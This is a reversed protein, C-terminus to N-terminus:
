RLLRWQENVYEAFSAAGSELWETLMQVSTEDLGGVISLNASEAIRTLPKELEAIARASRAITGALDLDLEMAMMRSATLTLLVAANWNTRQSWQAPVIFDAMGREAALAAIHRETALQIPAVDGHFLTAYRDDDATLELSQAISQKATPEVDIAIAAFYAAGNRRAEDALRELLALDTTVPFIVPVAVGWQSGKFDAFAEARPPWAAVIVDGRGRAASVLLQAACQNEDCWALADEGRGFVVEANEAADILVPGGITRARELEDRVRDCVTVEVKDGGSARHSTYDIALPTARRAGYPAITTAAWFPPEPATARRIRLQPVKRYLIM